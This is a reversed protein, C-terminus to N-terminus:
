SIKQEETPTLCTERPPNFEGFREGVFGARGWDFVCTLLQQIVRNCALQRDYRVM